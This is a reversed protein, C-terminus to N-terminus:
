ASPPRTDDGLRRRVVVLLQVLGVAATVWWAWAGAAAWGAPHGVVAGALLAMVTVVVRTPREGVTVVAVEVMGVMGARARVYEALLSTVGAAVVLSVPAGVRALVVLYGVEAVRDALSDWVAGFRSTRGTLVAVAGDLSDALASVTVLAAALVVRGAPGGPWAAWVAAGALLPGLLTVVDPSLRLAAFPRSAAYVGVLWGHVVRSRRPDYGGHVSSWRRLYEERSIVTSVPV